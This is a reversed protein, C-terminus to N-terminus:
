RKGRMENVWKNHQNILAVPDTYRPHNIRSCCRLTFERDQFIVSGIFGGLGSISPSRGCCPCELLVLGNVSICGFAKLSTSYRRKETYKEIEEKLAERWETSPPVIVRYGDWYDFQPSLVDLHGAGRKRFEALFDFFVGERNEVRWVYFGQEKPRVESYKNFKM